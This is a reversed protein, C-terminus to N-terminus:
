SQNTTAHEPKAHKNTRNRESKKLREGRLIASPTQCISDSGLFFIPLKNGRQECFGEGRQPSPPALRILHIGGAEPM